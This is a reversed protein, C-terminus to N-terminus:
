SSVINNDRTWNEIWQIIRQLNSDVDEVSNSPLEHVINEDYSEMAEDRLVAM